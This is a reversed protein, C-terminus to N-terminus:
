SFSMTNHVIKRWLAGLALHVVLNINSVRDYSAHIVGADIKAGRKYIAIYITGVPAKKTGGDPGAVGSIAAGFDANTENLLGCAMEVVVERSVAGHNELSTRSVQLFREKWENSYTVISGLFYNSSGPISTIKSALAGGTCSEALALTCKRETFEKQVVTQIDEDGYYFTSFEKEVRQVLEDVNHSSKFQIQLFGLQTHCSIEVNPYENRLKELFPSVEEETLMCLNCIKDQM